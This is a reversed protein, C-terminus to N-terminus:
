RREPVFGSLRLIIENAATLGFIGTLTPLSGLPRRARGRQYEGDVWQPPSVLESQMEKARSDQVQSSIDAPHVIPLVEEIKSESIIASEESFICPISLSIKEKKLRKRVAAALPCTRIKDLAGIKIKTPDTRCAAGMSSLFPLGSEALAKILQVKPGVPDIADMVFDWKEEALLERINNEDVFLRKSSVCCDPNIDKVRRAAVEHKFQGVTSTLAYLQRNINTENILDFDVLALRGVGSRALAEVTYSGVAGLGIVLVSSNQLRSLCEDGMLLRIRSLRDSM